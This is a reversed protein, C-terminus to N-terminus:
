STGGPTRPSTATIRHAWGRFFRRFTGAVMGLKTLDPSVEGDAEPVGPIVHCSGCGGRNIVAVVDRPAAPPQDKKPGPPDSPRVAGAVGALVLAMGFWIPTGPRSLDPM